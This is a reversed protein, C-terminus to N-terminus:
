YVCNFREILKVDFDIVHLKLTKQVAATFQCGNRKGQQWDVEYSRLLISLRQHERKHNDPFVSGMREIIKEEHNIHALFAPVVHHLSTASAQGDNYQRLMQSINAHDLDIELNRATVISHWM